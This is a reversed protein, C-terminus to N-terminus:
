FQAQYHNQPGPPRLPRPYYHHTRLFPLDDSTYIDSGAFAKGFGSVPSAQGSLIPDVLVTKEKYRIMYSSHGFWVIVPNHANLQLLDTKITPLTQSPTAEPSKFIFDKMMKVYSANKLTVDTPVLNQFANNRYNSSAKIRQLRIGAPNKGFIRLPM